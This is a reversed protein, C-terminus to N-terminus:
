KGQKERRRERRDRRINVFILVVISIATLIGVGVQIFQNVEALTLGWFTASTTVAAVTSKVEM